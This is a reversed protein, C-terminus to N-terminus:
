ATANPARDTSSCSAYLAELGYTSADISLAVSADALEIAALEPPLSPVVESM